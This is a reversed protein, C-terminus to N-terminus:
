LYHNISNSFLSLNWKSICSHYIRTWTGKLEGSDVFSNIMSEFDALVENIKVYSAKVNEVNDDNLGSDTTQKIYTLLQIASTLLEVGTNM